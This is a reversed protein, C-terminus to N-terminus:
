TAAAGRHFAPYAPQRQRSVGPRPAIPFNQNFVNDPGTETGAARRERAVAERLAPAVEEGFLQITRPDDAAIIFTSFGHELVLGLLDQVWQDPPGELFAGRTATFDGRINLLRRVERPDRGAASAAEDITRNAPGLQDHSM